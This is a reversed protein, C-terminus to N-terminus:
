LAKRPDVAAEVEDAADAHIVLPAVVDDEGRDPEAHAQAGPCADSVHVVRRLLGVDGELQPAKQGARCTFYVAFVHGQLPTGHSLGCDISWRKMIPLYSIMARGIGPEACMSRYVTKTPPRRM